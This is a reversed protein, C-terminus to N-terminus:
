KRVYTEHITDYILYRLTLMTIINKTSEKIEVDGFCTLM